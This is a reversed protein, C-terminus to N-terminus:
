TFNGFWTFGVFTMKITAKKVSEVFTIHIILDFTAINNNFISDITYQITASNNYTNTKM